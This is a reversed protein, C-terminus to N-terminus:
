SSSRPKTWSVSSGSAPTTRMTIRRLSLVEHDRGARSGASRCGRQRQAVHDGGGQGEDEGRGAGDPEGSGQRAMVVLRTDHREDVRHREAPDGERDHPRRVLEDGHHELPGDPALPERAPLEDDEGGADGAHDSVEIDAGPRPEREGGGDHAEPDGAVEDIRERGQERHLRPAEGRAQQDHRQHPQREGDEEPEGQGRVPDPCEERSAEERCKM